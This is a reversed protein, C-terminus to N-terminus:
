PKHVIAVTLVAFCITKSAANLIEIEWVQTKQGMHKPRAIGTVKGSSVPRVHHATLSQGVGVKSEDRLCYNAAISGLTEALVCSAGGHLLGFPQTTRSDVPMSAKLYDDGIEILHIGLSEAAGGLSTKNLATKRDFEKTWIM